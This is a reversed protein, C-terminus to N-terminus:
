ETVGWAVEMDVQRRQALSVYEVWDPADSGPWQLTNPPHLDQLAPDYPVAVPDDTHVFQSSPL